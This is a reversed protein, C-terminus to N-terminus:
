KFKITNIIENIESEFGKEKDTSVIGFYFDGIDTVYYTQTLGKIDENLLFTGSMIEKGDVINSQESIFQYDPKSRYNEILGKMYEKATAFGYEDKYVKKDFGLLIISPNFDKQTKSIILFQTEDKADIVKWDRPVKMTLYGNEFRGMKIKGSLSKGSINKTSHSTCCSTITIILGLLIQRM